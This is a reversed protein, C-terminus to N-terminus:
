TERLCSPWSNGTSVRTHSTYLFLRQKRKEVSGNGKLTVKMMRADSTQKVIRIEPSLRTVFAERCRDHVNSVPLTESKKTIMRTLILPELSKHAVPKLYWNFIFQIWKLYLKLLFTKNLSSWCLPTIILPMGHKPKLVLDACPIAPGHKAADYTFRFRRLLGSMIVKEELMAFRQGSFYSFM